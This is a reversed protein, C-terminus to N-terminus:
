KLSAASFYAGHNDVLSTVNVDRINAFRSRIGVLGIPKQGGHIAQYVFKLVGDRGSYYNWVTGSVAEHLTRWDGKAGVAGGLLHMEAIRLGGPKSALAQAATVMVRAGLSHGVLIFPVDDCRAILDALVAGTMGARNKAVSWPNTAVDSGKPASITAGSPAVPFHTDSM